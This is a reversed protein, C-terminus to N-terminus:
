PTYITEATCLGVRMANFIMIGDNAGVKSHLQSEFPIVALTLESSLLEDPSIWEGWGGRGKKGPKNGWNSQDWNPYGLSYTYYVYRYRVTNM